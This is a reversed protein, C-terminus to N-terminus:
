GLQECIVTPPFSLPTGLSSSRTDSGPAYLSVSGPIKSGSTNLVSASYVNGPGSIAARVLVPSEDPELLPTAETSEVEELVVELVAVTEGESDADAESAFEVVCRRIFVFCQLLVAVAESGLGVVAVAEADRVVNVDNATVDVICSLAATAVSM